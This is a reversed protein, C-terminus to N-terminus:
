TSLPSFLLLFVWREKTRRWVKQDTGPVSTDPLFLVHSVDSSRLATLRYFKPKLVISNRM